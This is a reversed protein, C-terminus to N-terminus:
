PLGARRAARPVPARRAPRRHPDEGDHRVAGRRAVLAEAAIEAIPRVGLTLTARDLRTLRGEMGYRASNALRVVEDALGPEAAIAALFENVNVNPDAALTLIRALADPEASV